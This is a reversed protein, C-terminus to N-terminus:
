NEILRKRILLLITLEEKLQRKARKSFFSSCSHSRRDERTLCSAVLETSVLQKVAQLADMRMREGIASTHLPDHEESGLSVDSLKAKFDFAAMFSTLFGRLVAYDCKM